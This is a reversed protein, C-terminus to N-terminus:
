GDENPTEPTELIPLRNMAEEGLIVDIARRLGLSYMNGTDDGMVSEWDVVMEELNAVTANTWKDFESTVLNIITVSAEPTIVGFRTLQTLILVIEKKPNKNM